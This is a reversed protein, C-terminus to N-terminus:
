LGISPHHLGAPRKQEFVQFAHSLCSEPWAQRPNRAVFQEACEVLKAPSLNATATAM